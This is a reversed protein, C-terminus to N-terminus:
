MRGFIEDDEGEMELLLVEMKSKLEPTVDLREVLEKRAVARIMKVREFFADVDTKKDMYKM